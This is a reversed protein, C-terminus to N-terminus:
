AKLYAVAEARSGIAFRQAMTSFGLGAIQPFYVVDL